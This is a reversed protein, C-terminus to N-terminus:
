KIHVINLSHFNFTMENITIQLLINKPSVGAMFLERMEGSTM